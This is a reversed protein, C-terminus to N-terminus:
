KCRVLHAGIQKGHLPNTIKFLSKYEFEIPFLFENLIV